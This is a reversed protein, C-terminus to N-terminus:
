LPLTPKETVEDVRNAAFTHGLYQYYVSSSESLLHMMNTM